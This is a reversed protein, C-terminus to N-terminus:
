GSSGTLSATLGPSLTPSYAFETMNTRGVAIFGAAKLRAIAVADAKAPAADNLVTSGARTVQGAMDFLDKVSMPIGAYPSAHSGRKRQADIHDAEALAAEGDVSLFTRAGEGAVDAIKDLSNQVLERASTRGDQLAAALENLTAM